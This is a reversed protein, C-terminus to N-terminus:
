VTEGASNVWVFGRLGLNDKFNRVTQEGLELQLAIEVVGYWARAVSAAVSLRAADYDATAADATLRVASTENAIRDWLDIEWRANVGGDFGNDTARRGAGAPSGRRSVNGDAALNPHSAAGAIDARAQATRIRAAAVRLDVNHHLAEDVLSSVVPDALDALWGQAPATTAIRPTSWAAPLAIRSDSLETHVTTPLECGALVAFLALIAGARLATM